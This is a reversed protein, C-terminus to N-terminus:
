KKHHKAAANAMGALMAKFDIGMDKLKNAMRTDQSIRKEPKKKDAIGQASRSIRKGIQPEPIIYRGDTDRLEAQIEESEKKLKDEWLDRCVREREMAAICSKKHAWVKEQITKLSQEWIEAKYSNYIYIKCQQCLGCYGCDDLREQYEKEAAKKLLIQEGTQESKRGDTEPIETEPINIEKDEQIAKKIEPTPAAEKGNIRKELEEKARLSNKLLAPFLLAPDIKPQPIKKASPAHIAKKQEEEEKELRAIEDDLDSMKKELKFDLVQFNTQWFLRSYTCNGGM